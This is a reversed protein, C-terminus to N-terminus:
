VQWGGIAELDIRFIALMSLPVLLVVGLFCLAVRFKRMFLSAVAYLLNLGAVLPMSLMVFALPIHLAPTTYLSEGTILIHLGPLLVLTLCLTISIWVQFEFKRSM